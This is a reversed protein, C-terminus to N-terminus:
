AARNISTSSILALLDEVTQCQAVRSGPLPLGLEKDVTAIIAMTSLSDWGELDRLTEGGTLTHPGMDLTRELLRLADQRIM